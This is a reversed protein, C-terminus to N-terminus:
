SRVTEIWKGVASVASGQGNTLTNAVVEYTAGTPVDFSFGCAGNNVTAGVTNAFDGAGNVFCQVSGVSSGSTIGYGTVTMPLGYPNTYTSGFSRSGTVDYRTAAALPVSVPIFVGGVNTLVQGATGPSSLTLQATTLKFPFLAGNASVLPGFARLLGTTTDYGFLQLSVANPAPDPQAAGVMNSPYTVVRGGSGDQQYYMAVVQGSSLGTFTFSLAGSMAKIYFGNATAANLTLTAAYSVVQVAPLLDATTLFNACTATLTSLNSDSTTFGKNAFATFLGELYTSWQYFAKNALAADFLSPDTAGGARQSDALYAADNEQNAAGPNWQQVNTTAM